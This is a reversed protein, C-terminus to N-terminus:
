LGGGISGYNNIAFTGVLHVFIPVSYQLLLGRMLLGPTIKKIGALFILRAAFYSSIFYSLLTLLRSCDRATDYGFDALQGVENSQGYRPDVPAGVLGQAHAVQDYVGVAMLLLQPALLFGVRSAVKFSHSSSIKKALQKISKTAM